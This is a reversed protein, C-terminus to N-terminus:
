PIDHGTGGSGMGISAEARLAWSVIASRREKLLELSSTVKVLLGDLRNVERDLHGAITRQESLPHWPVPIDALDQANIAPYNVGVSRREVEALFGAERLAFKCYGADFRDPLPRIVAFGTSVVLNDDPEYIRAISQLYTRVTSIIVDGDRVLRRARSPADGFRYSLTGSVRGGSDVNGIDIYEIEFDSDTDERLVDDNVSALYKLKRKSAVTMTDLGRHVAHSIISRRKEALRELLGEKAAMLADLRETEHDLYDSIARQQCLPPIPIRYNRVFEDPVRKQGAAGFMAIEGLRRFRDSATVYYLYRADLESGPSLVHLETTGFGLGNLLARALAGKGNEFCPTIKAVLVDGDFFRTYGKSVDAVDRVISCNLEGREGINEMPLFTAQSCHALARRQEASLDRRLLFRMRKTPWTKDIAENM